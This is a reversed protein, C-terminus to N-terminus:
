NLKVNIKLATNAVGPVPSATLLVPKVTLPVTFNATTPKVGAMASGNVNVATNVPKVASNGWKLQYGISSNGKVKIIGNAANSAGDNGTFSLSYTPLVNNCTFNININKAAISGAKAATATVTGFAVDNVSVGCSVKNVLVISTPSSFAVTEKMLTSPYDGIRSYFNRTFMFSPNVTTRGPPTKKQLYMIGSDTGGGPGAVATWGTGSTKYDALLLWSTNGCSGTSRFRLYGNSSTKDVTGRPCLGSPTGGYKDVIYIYNGTTGGNTADGNARQCQGAFAIGIDVPSGISFLKSGVAKNTIDIESPPAYTLSLNRCRAAWSDISVLSTMLLIIYPAKNKM